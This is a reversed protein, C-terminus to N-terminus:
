LIINLLGPPLLKHLFGRIIHTHVTRNQHVRLGPHCASMQSSETIREHVTLFTMFSEARVLHDFVVCLFVSQIDPVANVSPAMLFHFCIDLLMLNRTRGAALMIKGLDPFEIQHKLGELSYCFIRLTHYIEARLSCLPNKNVKFIHLTCGSLLDRKSDTLNSFRESVLNCRTVEDETGSLKFLHLHFKETFRICVKLPMCVPFLETQIPQFSQSQFIFLHTITIMRRFFQAMVAFRSCVYFEQERKAPSFKPSDSVTGIKVQCLM